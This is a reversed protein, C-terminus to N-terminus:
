PWCSYDYTTRGIDEPLDDRVYSYRTEIMNGGVDYRYDTRHEDPGPRLYDSHRALREAYVFTHIRSTTPPQVRTITLVRGREDLTYFYDEGGGRRVRDTAGIDWTFTTDAELILGMDAIPHVQEDPAQDRLAFLAPDYTQKLLGPGTVTIAAPEFRWSAHGGHDDTEIQALKDGSWTYTASRMSGDHQLCAIESVRDAAYDFTCDEDSGASRCPGVYAATNDPDPCIGDPCATGCGTAVLAAFLLLARVIV